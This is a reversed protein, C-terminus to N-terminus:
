SVEARGKAGRVSKTATGALGSIVADQGEDPVDGLKDVLFEAGCQRARRIVDERPRGEGGVSFGDEDLEVIQLKHGRLIALALGQEDTWGVFGGGSPRRRGRRAGLQFIAEEGDRRPGYVLSYLRMEEVSLVGDRGGRIITVPVGKPEDLKL